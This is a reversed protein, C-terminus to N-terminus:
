DWLLDLLLERSLDLLGNGVTEVVGASGGGTTGVGGVGLAGTDGVRSALALHRLTQLLGDGLTELLSQRVADM